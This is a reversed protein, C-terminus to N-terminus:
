TRGAALAAGTDLQVGSLKPAGEGPFMGRGGPEM